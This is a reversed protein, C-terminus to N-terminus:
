YIRLIQCNQHSNKATVASVLNKRKKKLVSTSNGNQGVTLSISCPLFKKTVLFQLHSETFLNYWLKNHLCFSDIISLWDTFHYSSTHQSLVFIKYTVFFYVTWLDNCPHFVVTECMETILKFLNIHPSVLLWWLRKSFKCLVFLVSAEAFM